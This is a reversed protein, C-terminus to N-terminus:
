NANFTLNMITDCGFVLQMPMANLATHMTAIIAYMAEALMGSWPDTPDLDKKHVEVTCM